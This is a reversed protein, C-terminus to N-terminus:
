SSAFFYGARENVCMEGPNMSVLMMFVEIAVRIIPTTKEGKIVEVATLKGSKMGDGEGAM